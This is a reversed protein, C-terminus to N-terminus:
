VLLLLLELSSSSAVEPETNSPCLKLQLQLTEHRLLEGSDTIERDPEADPDPDTLAVSKGNCDFESTGTLFCNLTGNKVGEGADSRWRDDALL